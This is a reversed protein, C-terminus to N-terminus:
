KQSKKYHFALFVFVVTRKLAMWSLPHRGRKKRQQKERQQLALEKCLRKAAGMRQEEEPSAFPDMGHKHAQHATPRLSSRKILFFSLVVANKDVLHRHKGFLEMRRLGEKPLAPMLVMGKRHGLSCKNTAARLGVPWPECSLYAFLLEVHAVDRTM